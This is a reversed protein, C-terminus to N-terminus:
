NIEYIRLAYGKPLDAKIYNSLNIFDHDERRIIYEGNENIIVKDNDISFVADGEYTTDIEGTITKGELQKLKRVSDGPRIKVLIKKAM